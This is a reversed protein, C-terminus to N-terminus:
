SDATRGGNEWVVRKGMFTGEIFEKDLKMGSGVRLEEFAEKEGQKRKVLMRSIHGLWEVWRSNSDVDRVSLVRLAPLFQELEAIKFDHLYPSWGPTDLYLKCIRQDM